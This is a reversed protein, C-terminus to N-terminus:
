TRGAHIAAVTAPRNKITRIRNSWRTYVQRNVFILSTVAFAPVGGFLNRVKHKLRDVLSRGGYSQVVLRNGLVNGTRHHAGQLHGVGVFLVGM